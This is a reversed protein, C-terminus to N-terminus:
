RRGRRTVSITQRIRAGNRSGASSGQLDASDTTSTRRASGVLGSAAVRSAPGMPTQRLSDAARSTEERQATRIDRAEDNRGAILYGGLGSTVTGIAGFAAVFITTIDAM